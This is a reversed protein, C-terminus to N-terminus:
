PQDDKTACKQLESGATWVCGCDECTYTPEHEDLPYENDCEPCSPLEKFHNEGCCSLQSDNVGIGCYICILM